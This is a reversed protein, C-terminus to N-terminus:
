RTLEGPPGASARAVLPASLFREIKEFFGLGDRNADLDFFFILYGGYSCM